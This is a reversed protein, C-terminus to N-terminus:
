FELRQEFGPDLRCSIGPDGDGGFLQDGLGALNSSAIRAQLAEAGGGTPHHPVHPPVTDGDRVLVLLKDAIVAPLSEQGVGASLIVPHNVGPLFRKDAARARFEKPPFLLQLRVLPLVGPLPRVKTFGAPLAIPIPRIKPLM